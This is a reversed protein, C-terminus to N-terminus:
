RRRWDDRTSRWFLYLVRIFFLAVLAYVILLAPAHSM